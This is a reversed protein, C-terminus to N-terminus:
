ARTLRGVPVCAGLSHFVGLRPNHQSLFIMLPLFSTIIFNKNVACGLTHEEEVVVM